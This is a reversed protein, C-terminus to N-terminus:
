PFFGSYTESHEMETSKLSVIKTSIYNLFPTYSFLASFTETFEFFKSSWLMGYILFGLFEFSLHEM